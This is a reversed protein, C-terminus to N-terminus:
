QATCCISCTTTGQAVLLPLFLSFMCYVRPRGVQVVLCFYRNRTRCTRSEVSCYVVWLWTLSGLGEFVGAPLSTLAMNNMTRPLFVVSRCSLSWNRPPHFIWMVQLCVGLQVTGYCDFYRAKWCIMESDTLSLVRNGCYTIPWDYRRNGWQQILGNARLPSYAFWASKEVQFVIWVLMTQQLECTNLIRTHHVLNWPHVLRLHRQM